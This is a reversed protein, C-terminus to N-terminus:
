LEVLNREINGFRFSSVSTPEQKCARWWQTYGRSGWCWAGFDEGSHSPPGHLVAGAADCFLNTICKAILVVLSSISVSTLQLHPAVQWLVNALLIFTICHLPHQSFFCISGCVMTDPRTLNSSILSFFLRMTCVIFAPVLFFLM